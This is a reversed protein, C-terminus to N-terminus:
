GTSTSRVLAARTTATAATVAAPLAHPFRTHYQVARTTSCQTHPAARANIGHAAAAAAAALRTM